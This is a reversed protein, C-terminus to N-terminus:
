ALGQITARCGFLFGERGVGLLDSLDSGGRELAAPSVSAAPATLFIVSQHYHAAALWAPSATWPNSPQYWRGMGRREIHLLGSRDAALVWEPRAAADQRSLDLPPLGDSLRDARFGLPGHRDDQGPQLYFVPPSDEPVSFVFYDEIPKQGRRRHQKPPLSDTEVPLGRRRRELTIQSWSWVRTRGCREHTWVPMQLETPKPKGPQQVERLALGVHVEREKTVVVPEDCLFCVIPDHHGPQGHKEAHAILQRIQGEDALDSVGQAVFYGTVYTPSSYEATGAAEDFGMTPNHQEGEDGTRGQEYERRVDQLAAEYSQGTEEMRRRAANKLAQQKAGM